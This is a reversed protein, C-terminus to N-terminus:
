LPTLIHLNAKKLGLPPLNLQERQPRLYRGSRSRRVTEYLNITRLCRRRPQYRKTQTTRSCSYFRSTCTHGRPVNEPMIADGVFSPSSSSPLMLASVAESERKIAGERLKERLQLRRDRRPHHHYKIGTDIYRARACRLWLQLLKQRQSGPKPMASGLKNPKCGVIM